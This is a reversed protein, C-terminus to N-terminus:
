SIQAKFEAHCARCTRYQIQKEAHEGTRATHWSGCRPCRASVRRVVVETVEAAVVEVKKRRGRPM